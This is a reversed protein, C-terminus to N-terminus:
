PRYLHETSALTRRLGAAVASDIQALTASDLVANSDLKRVSAIASSIEAYDSAPRKGGVTCLEVLANIAVGATLGPLELPSCEARYRLVDDRHRMLEEAITERSKNNM